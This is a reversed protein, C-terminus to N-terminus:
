FLCQSVTKGIDRNNSDISIGGSPPSCKFLEDLWDDVALWADQNPRLHKSLSMIEM